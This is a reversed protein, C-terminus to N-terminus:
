LGRRSQFRQSRCLGARLLWSRQVSISQPPLVGSQSCQQCRCAGHFKWMRAGGDGHLWLPFKNGCEM